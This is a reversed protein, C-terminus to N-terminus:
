LTSFYLKFLKASSTQRAMQGSLGIAYYNLGAIIPKLCELSDVSRSQKYSSHAGMFVELANQSMHMLANESFIDNIAIQQATFQGVTFNLAQSPTNFAFCIL